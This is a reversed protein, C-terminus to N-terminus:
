ISPTIELSRILEIEHEVENLVEFPNNVFYQVFKNEEDHTIEKNKWLNTNVPDFRISEM